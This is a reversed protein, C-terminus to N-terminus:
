RLLHLIRQKIVKYASRRITVKQALKIQQSIPMTQCNELFKKIIPIAHEKKRSTSYLSVYKRGEVLNYKRILSESLSFEEITHVPVIEFLKLMLKDSWELSSRMNPMIGVMLSGWLASKNSLRYLEDEIEFVQDKLYRVYVNFRKRQHILGENIFFVAQNKQILDFLELPSKKFYTDTDFFLIRDEHNLNLEDMVYALGRNKIRFHYQGNLSWENKQKLSMKITKVEKGYFKEPNDTLVVIEINDNKTIWNKLTLISYQAEFFYERKDGYVIYLVIKKM